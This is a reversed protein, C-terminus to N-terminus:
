PQGGQMLQAMTTESYDAPVAFLSAPLSATSVSKFTDTETVQKFNQMRTHRVKLAFGKTAMSAMGQAMPGMSAMMKQMGDRMAGLTKLDGSPIGLGAASDTVCLTPGPRGNMLVQVDKCSHGAITESTGLDKFQAGQTPSPANRTQAPTTGMLQQMQAQQEPTLQSMAAQLQQQAQAMQDPTAGLAQAGSRAQQAASRVAGIAEATKQDFVLYQKRDAMLVTSSNTPTDYISVFQGGGAEIRVKGGKVYIQTSPQGSDDVFSIRTDALAPLACATTALLICLRLM